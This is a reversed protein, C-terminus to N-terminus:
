PLLMPSIVSSSAITKRSKEGIAAISMWCLKRTASSPFSRTLDWVWSNAVKLNLHIAFSRIRQISIRNLVFKVAYKDVVDVREVFDTVLWSPDSKTTFVRDISWKVANADFASGDTFKLGKRIKFTYEKGGAGIDYSEALGPVLETSGIKYKLLGEYINYFIEWTHFDYAKAPDMDIIKETTGYVLTEKAFVNSSFVVLSFATLCILIFKFTKM